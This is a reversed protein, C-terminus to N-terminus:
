DNGCLSRGRVSRILAQTCDFLCTLLHENDRRLRANEECLLRTEEWMAFPKTEDIPNHITM